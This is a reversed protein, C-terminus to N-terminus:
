QVIRVLVYKVSGARRNNGQNQVTAERYEGDASYRDDPCARFLEALRVSAHGARRAQPLRGLMRSESADESDQFM